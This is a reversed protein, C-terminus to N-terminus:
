RHTEETGGKGGRERDRVREGRSSVIEQHVDVLVMRWPVSVTQSVEVLVIVGLELLADQPLNQERVRGILLPVEPCHAVLLGLFPIHEATLDDADSSVEVL